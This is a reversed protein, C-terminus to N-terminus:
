WKQSGSCHLMVYMSFFTVNKCNNKKEVRMMDVKLYLHGLYSIHQMSQTFLCCKGDLFCMKIVHWSSNKTREMNEKNMLRECTKCNVWNSKVYLLTGYYVVNLYM